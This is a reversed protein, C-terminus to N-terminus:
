AVQRSSQVVTVERRGGLSLVLGIILFITGLIFGIVASAGTVFIWALGSGVATLAQDNANGAASVMDHTVRGSLLMMSLPLAFVAVGLVLFGRGFTRRITPAFFALLTVIAIVALTAPVSYQSSKDDFAAVAPILVLASIVGFIVGIIVRFLGKLARM